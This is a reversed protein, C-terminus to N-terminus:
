ETSSTPCGDDKVQPSLDHISTPLLLGGQWANAAGNSIPMDTVPHVTLKKDVIVQGLEGTRAFPRLWGVSIDGFGKGFCHTPITV